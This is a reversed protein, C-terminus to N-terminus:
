KNEIGWRLDVHLCEMWGSKKGNKDYLPCCNKPTLSDVVEQIVYTQEITNSREDECRDETGSALPLKEESEPVFSSNGGWAITYCTVCPYLNGDPNLVWFYNQWNIWPFFSGDDLTLTGGITANMTNIMDEYQYRENGYVLARQTEDEWVFGQLQAAPDAAGMWSEEAAATGISCVLAAFAIPAGWTRLLSRYYTTM